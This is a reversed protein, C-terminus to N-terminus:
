PKPVPVESLNSVVLHAKGHLREAPLTTALAVVACGAANGASLGALSDEYVICDAPKCGLRAAALQYGEPDPKSRTVDKDTIVVDVREKLQPLQTFLREMKEPNSSTVIAKKWGARDLRDFYDLVGEFIEYQMGAEFAKLDAVVKRRLEEDPYYTDLIRSLTNGKIVHAFDEIGTPYRREIESWFRTYLTESDILVGDLDFLAAHPEETLLNEPLRM